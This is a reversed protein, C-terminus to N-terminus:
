RRRMWIDASHKPFLCIALFEEFNGVFKAVHCTQLDPVNSSAVVVFETSFNLGKVVASDGKCITARLLFANLHM